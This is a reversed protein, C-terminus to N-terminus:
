IPPPLTKGCKQCFSYERDNPTGCFPCFRTSAPSSRAVAPLTESAQPAPSGTPYGLPVAGRPAARLSEDRTDLKPKSSALLVVAALLLIAAVVVLYWGIGAGWTATAGGSSVSGWFSNCPTSGSGCSAGANSSDRNYAFPQVFVVLFPLLLAFGFSIQTLFGADEALRRSKNTAAVSAYGVAMGAFAAIAATLGFGLVTEYLYGVATLNASAYTASGSYTAGDYTGSGSLSSGPLFNESASLGGGSASLGWWSVAM